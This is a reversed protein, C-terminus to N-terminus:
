KVKNQASQIFFKHNVDDGIRSITGASPNMLGFGAWRYVWIVIRLYHQEGSETDQVDYLVDGNKIPRGNKYKLGTNTPPKM